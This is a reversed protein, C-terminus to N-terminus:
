SIHSRKCCLPADLKGSILNVWIKWNEVPSVSWSQLNIPKPTKRGSECLQVYPLCINKFNVVTLIKNVDNKKTYLRYIVSFVRESEKTPMLKSFYM